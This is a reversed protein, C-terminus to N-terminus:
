GSARGARVDRVLAAAREDPLTPAPLPRARGRALVDHLREAAALARDARRARLTDPRVIVAVPVGHRTVTVEDGDSVRDLLAPLGARAESVTVTTTTTPTAMTMM